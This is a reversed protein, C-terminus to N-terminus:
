NCDTRSVIDGLVHPWRQVGDDTAVYAASGDDALYLRRAGERYGTDIAGAPLTVLTEFTGELTSPDYALYYGDHPDWVYLRGEVALRTGQYCDAREGVVSTPVIAGNRDTWVRVEGLRAPTPTPTMSPSRTPTADPSTSASPSSPVVDVTLGTIDVNGYLIPPRGGVLVCVFRRGPIPSPREAGAAGSLLPGDWAERYVVVFAPDDVELEPARLAAPFYRRYDRAHTMEFVFEPDDSMGFCQTLRPDGAFGEPGGPLVQESSAEAPALIAEAGSGGSRPFVVALLGIVVVIAAVFPLPRLSRRRRPPLAAVNGALAQLSSRDEALQEGQGM